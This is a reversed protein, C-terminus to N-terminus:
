RSAEYSPHVQRLDRALWTTSCAGYGLKTLVQYRDKFIDGLHVPYYRHAKYDLLTEEEIPQHPDLLDFGTTPCKQPKEREMLEPM